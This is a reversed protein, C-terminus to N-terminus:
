ILILNIANLSVSNTGFIFFKFLYIILSIHTWLIGGYLKLDNNIRVGEIEEIKFLISM